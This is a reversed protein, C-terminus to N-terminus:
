SFLSIDARLSPPSFPMAFFSVIPLFFDSFFASAPM